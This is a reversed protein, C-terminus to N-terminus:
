NNPIVYNYTCSECHFTPTAPVAEQAETKVKKADRRDRKRNKSKRDDEEQEPQPQDKKKLKPMKPGKKGYNTFLYELDGNNWKESFEQKAQQLFPELEFLPFTKKCCSILYEYLNKLYTAYEPNKVRIYIDLPFQHFKEVFTFYDQIKESSINNWQEFFDHLDLHRGWREEGSYPPM